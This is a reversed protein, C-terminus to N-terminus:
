SLVHTAFSIDPHSFTLYLLKGVLKRYQTADVREKIDFRSLKVGLALPTAVPKSNLYGFDALLVLVYKRQNLMIRKTSRALELGLFYHPVGLDKLKFNDALWCKFDALSDESDCGLLIDDVYVLLMLKHRDKEM